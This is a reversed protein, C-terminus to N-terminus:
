RTPATLRRARADRLPLGRKTAWRVLADEAHGIMRTPRALTLLPPAWEFVLSDARISLRNRRPFYFLIGLGAVAALLGMWIVSRDGAELAGVVALAVGFALVGLGATLEAARSCPALSVESIQRLALHETVVPDAVAVAKTRAWWAGRNTLVLKLWYGDIPLDIDFDVEEGPEFKPDFAM